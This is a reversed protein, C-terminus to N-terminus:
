EVSKHTRDQKYAGTATFASPCLNQSHILPATWCSCVGVDEPVVGSGSASSCLHHRREVTREDPRAWSFASASALTHEQRAVVQEKWSTNTSKECSSSCSASARETFRLLFGRFGRACVIGVGDSAAVGAKMNMERQNANTRAPRHSTRSVGSDVSM